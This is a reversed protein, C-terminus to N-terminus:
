SPSVHSLSGSVRTIALAWSRKSVTTVHPEAGDCTLDGQLDHINRGHVLQAYLLSWHQTILARRDFILSSHDTVM